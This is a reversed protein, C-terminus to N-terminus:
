GPVQLHPSQFAVFLAQQQAYGVPVNGRTQGLFHVLGLREAHKGLLCMPVDDHPQRVGAVHVFGDHTAMGRLQYLHTLSQLLLLNHLYGFFDVAAEMAFLVGHPQNQDGSRRRRPLRREAFAKGHLQQGTPQPRDRERGVVIEDIPHVSGLQGVPVVVEVVHFGHVVMQQFVMQCPQHLALAHFNRLVIEDGALAFVVPFLQLQPGIGHEDNFANVGQIRQERLLNGVRGLVLHINRGECANREVVVVPNRRAVVPQESADDTVVVLTRKCRLLGNSLPFINQLSLVLPYEREM